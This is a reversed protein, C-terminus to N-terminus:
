RAEFVITHSIKFQFLLENTYTPVAPVRLRRRRWRRWQWELSKLLETQKSGEMASCDLRVEISPRGAAAAATIAAWRSSSRSRAARAAVERKQRPTSASGASQRCSSHLRNPGAASAAAAEPECGM